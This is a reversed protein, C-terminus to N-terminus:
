RDSFEMFVRVLLLPFSTVCGAVRVAYDAKAFVRAVAV